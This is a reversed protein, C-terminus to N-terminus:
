NCADSQSLREIVRKVLKRMDGARKDATEMVEKHNPPERDSDHELIVMNTILSMGVIYLTDLMINNCTHVHHM